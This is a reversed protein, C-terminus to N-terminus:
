HGMQGGRAGSAAYTVMNKPILGKNTFEHLTQEAAAQGEDQRIQAFYTNWDMADWDAYYEKTGAQPTATPKKLTGNQYAKWAETASLGGAAKKSNPGWKGDANIGLAQQMKRIVSTALGGNDYGDGSTDVKVSGTSGGSGSGGSSGGSKGAQLEYEKQWQEQAIRDQEQQYEFAKEWQADEVEDRHQSYAASYENWYQESARDYGESYMGYDYAREDAYAGTYYDRDSVLKNYGDMHEGYATARDDALMSYKNYLDQGEQNYKDLEMQYLEPVIDNLKELEAHYAQQGAMQSFSSGYGGNMAAAQGMTDMMAMQGRKTYQDAYQQYLANGNLDFSFDKRNFIQNIVEDLYAQNDYTFEGYNEVAKEADEKKQGAEKAADSEEYDAYQFPAMNFTNGSGTNANTSTPSTTSGGGYLVGYTNVGAIGDADLNNDMQFQRLMKDTEQGFIGDVSLKYGKSLLANQLESVDEGQSGISLERRNGTGM